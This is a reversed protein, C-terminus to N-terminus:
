FQLMIEIYCKSNIIFSIENSEKVATIQISLSLCNRIKNNNLILHFTSLNNNTITKCIVM